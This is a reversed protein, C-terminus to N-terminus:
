LSVCIGPKGTVPAGAPKRCRLGPECEIESAGGCPELERSRKKKVCTGAQDPHTPGTMACTLGAQCAIGAIGGCMGGEDGPSPTDVKACIGTADPHNAKIRCTYGTPCPLGAIGGCVKGKRLEDEDTPANENSDSSAPTAQGGCAACLSFLSILWSIALRSNM